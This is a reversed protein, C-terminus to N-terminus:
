SPEPLLTAAAPDGPSGAQQRGVRAFPLHVQIRGGGEPANVVKMQGGLMRARERIGMLGHSGDRHMSQATFGCGNDQVTLLLGTGERELRICASTARAHRAINTIGEQIMRYVAIATPPDVIADIEDVHLTFDIGMRRSSERVLWEIAPTLGLDDLMLPRLDTAIRRVSAVTEDVMDIMAGIRPRAAPAQAALSSLEMKLATLRQGLEDHLERAIRLREEERAEVLGASLRRLERRSQKLQASEQNRDTVDTIVMQMATQGHDPLAAVAIEVERVSGDLRHVRESVTPVQDQHALAQAIIHRVGIQSEPSLLTYISRGMLDERRGAGFLAACARNAFVIADGDTVSIAIPALEFIARIRRQLNLLESKLGQKDSDSAADLTGIRADGFPDHAATTV